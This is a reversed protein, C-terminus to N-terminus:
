TAAGIATKREETNNPKALLKNALIFFLFLAIMSTGPIIKNSGPENPNKLIELKNCLLITSPISIAKFINVVEIANTIPIM